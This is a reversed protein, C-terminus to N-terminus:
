KGSENEIKHKENQGDCDLRKLTITKHMIPLLLNSLLFPGLYNVALHLEFGEETM